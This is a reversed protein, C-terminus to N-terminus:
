ACMIRWRAFGDNPNVVNQDIMRRLWKENWVNRISVSAAKGVQLAEEEEDEDKDENDDNESKSWWIKRELNLRSMWTVKGRRLEDKLHWISIFVISM